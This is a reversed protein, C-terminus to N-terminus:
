LLKLYLVKKVQDPRMLKTYKKREKPYVPSTPKQNTDKLYDHM